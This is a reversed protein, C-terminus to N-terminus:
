TRVGGSELLRALTDHMPLHRNPWGTAGTVDRVLALVYPGNTDVLAQCGEDVITFSRADRLELSPAPEEEDREVLLQFAVCPRGSLPARLLEGGPQVLGTVRITGDGAQGIRVRPRAALKRKTGAGPDYVHRFAAAGVGLVFLALMFLFGTAPDM